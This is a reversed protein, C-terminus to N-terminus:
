LLAALGKRDIKGSSTRPLAKIFIFRRPIMYGPLAEVCARRMDTTNRDGELFAAIDSVAGSSEIIPVVAVQGTPHMMRLHSEVELLDVRHGRVKVQQDRRGIFLLGHERTSEALDGTCYWNSGGDRRFPGAADNDDRWYGNAVQDGSLLLEGGHRDKSGEGVEEIACRIGPLPWGIPVIAMEKPLGGCYPYSTAFVTAETPGYLNIIDSAPSVAQWTEALTVPLAEGCFISRRICALIGPRVARMAIMAAALTPVSSWVSVREEAAYQALALRQKPNPVMVCGGASWTPFIEGVSFDFSLDSVQLARDVPELPAVQSLADLFAVVNHHSIPVMKPTGTSGSTFAVYALDEAEIPKEGRSRLDIMELNEGGISVVRRPEAPQRLFPQLMELKSGPGIIAALGARRVQSVVRQAPDREGLPVYANGGGLVGLMAAFMGVSKEGFLGILSARFGDRGLMMRIRASAGHLREYTWSEGGVSLCPRGAFRGASREFREFLNDM